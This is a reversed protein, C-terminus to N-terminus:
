GEDRGEPIVNVGGDLGGDKISEPSGDNNGVTRRERKDEAIGVDTGGPNGDFSVLMLGVTEISGLVSGLLPGLTLGVIDLAGVM